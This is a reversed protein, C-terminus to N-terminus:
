IRRLGRCALRWARDAVIGTRSPPLVEFGAADVADEGRQQRSMGHRSGFHVWVRGAEIFPTPSAYSNLPYCYQPEAIEFVLKDHVIRGTERDVCVAYLRTGDEPATTM